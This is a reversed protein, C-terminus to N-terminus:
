SRRATQEDFRGLLLKFIVAAAVALGAAAALVPPYGLRTFASGAVAASIAQCSFSVFFNLGSAGSQEEERVNKMLLTYMGPESMWQFSSYGIYAVAATAPASSSALAALAGAAALQTGAIGSVLGFRRFVIPASLIALVQMAQSLSFIGGISDAGLRFRQVFYANFFPNFSSTAMTWIALAALYAVIFRSRPFVSRGRPKERGFQLRSAPWAALAMLCCAVILALEIPDASGGRGPIAVLWRPLRGAILGGCIGVGIGAGVMISFGLARSREDTLRAVAPPISVAWFSAVVGCLFASALLLPPGTAMTRLVSIAAFGTFCLVLTRRLGLRRSLAGAPLAGAVSGAMMAGTVWGLFNEAFGRNLLHINYLVFFIFLGLNYLSAAGLFLWFPGPLRPAVIARAFPLAARVHHSLRAAVHACYKAKARVRAPWRDDKSAVEEPAPLRLPVIRRRVVAAKDAVSDLLNLHLWVEDKNPQFYGRVPSLAHGDFWKGIGEPLREVEERVRPALRCTFLEAALRFTISEIQRLRECHLERWTEWFAEDEAHTDLFYAIEFVHYLKLSGRLWHRLAHLACYALGDAPHFVPVCRDQIQRLTRRSWFQDVGPADFRETRQDWLRFHLDVAIPMQPNFYNGDHKWGNWRVLSPLHDSPFSEYTGPQYGLALIAQRAREAHEPCFLDIDYQVRHRLDSIYDPRQAMGKLTVFEIGAQGLADAIEFFAAHVRASREATDQLNRSLRRRVWDPCKLDPARALALTLQSRDCFSLLHGWEGDELSELKEGCPESFDLACLVAAASRPLWTAHAEAQRTPVRASVKADLRGSRIRLGSTEVRCARTRLAV